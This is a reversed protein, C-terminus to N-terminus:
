GKKRYRKNTYPQDYCRDPKELLFNMIKNSPIKNKIFADFVNIKGYSKNM